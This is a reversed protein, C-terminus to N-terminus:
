DVELIYLDDNTEKNVLICRFCIMLYKRYDDLCQVFGRLLNKEVHRPCGTNDNQKM